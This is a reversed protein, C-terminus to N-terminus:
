AIFINLLYPAVISILLSVLFNETQAYYVFALVIGAILSIPGALTRM